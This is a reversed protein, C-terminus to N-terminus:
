RLAVYATVGAFFLLVLVVLYTMFLRVLRTPDGHGMKFQMRILPTLSFAFETVVVRSVAPEGRMSPEEGALDGDGNTSTAHSTNTYNIHVDGHVVVGGSEGVLDPLTPIDQRTTFRPLPRVEGVPRLELERPQSATRTGAHEILEGEVPVNELPISRIVATGASIDCTSAVSDLARRWAIVMVAISEARCGCGALFAKLQDEHQPVRRNSKSVFRYATSRPLVPGAYAAVRGATRGSGSLIERLLFLFEAETEVSDANMRILDDVNPWGPLHESAMM